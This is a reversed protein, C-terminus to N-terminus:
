TVLLLLALPVMDGFYLEIKEFLTDTSYKVAVKIVFNTSSGLYRGKPLERTNTGLQRKLETARYRKGQCDSLM